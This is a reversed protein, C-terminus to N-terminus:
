HLTNEIKWFKWNKWEIDGITFNRMLGSKKLFGLQTWINNNKLKIDILENKRMYKDGEEYQWAIM